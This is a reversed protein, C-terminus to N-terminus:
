LILTYTFPTSLPNKFIPTENKAFHHTKFQCALRSDFTQILEDEGKYKTMRPHTYTLRKHHINYKRTGINVNRKDKTLVIM